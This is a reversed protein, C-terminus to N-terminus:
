IKKEKGTKYKYILIYNYDCYNELQYKVIKFLLIQKSVFIIKNELKM